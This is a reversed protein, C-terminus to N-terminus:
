KNREKKKNKKEPQQHKTENVKNNKPIEKTEEAVKTKEQEEKAKQEKIDEIKERISPKEEKKIGEKKENQNLSSESPSNKESSPLNSPNTNENEEKINQKKMLKNLLDQSTNKEQISKDIEPKQENNKEVKEVPVKDLESEVKAIDVTTLKFREIIRNIRVADDERAIIDVMGDTDKKNLLSTYLIGYRKAQKEFKLFDDKSMSFVRLPSKSKLMNTLKTKGKTKKDTDKAMTYLLVAVNKAMSGTIRLAFEVGELSIKVVEDASDSVTSM